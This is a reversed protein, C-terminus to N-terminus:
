HIATRLRISGSHSEVSPSAPGIQNTLLTQSAGIGLAPLFRGLRCTVFRAAEVQRKLSTKRGERVVYASSKHRWISLDGSPLQLGIRVTEPHTTAFKSSTGADLEAVRKM